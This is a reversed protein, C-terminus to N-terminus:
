GLLDRWTTTFGTEKEVAQTGKHCIAGKDQRPILPATLESQVPISSAPSPQHAERGRRLPILSSSSSRRPPALLLPSSATRPPRRHLARVLARGVLPGSKWQRGSRSASARPQHAGIQPPTRLGREPRRVDSRHLVPARETRKKVALFSIYLCFCFFRDVLVLTHRGTGNSIAM